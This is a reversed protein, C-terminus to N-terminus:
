DEYIKYGTQMQPSIGELNEKKDDKGTYNYGIEHYRIPYTLQNGKDWTYLEKNRHNYGIMTTKRFPNSFLLNVDLLTEKYLDLAFRIKTDRISVSDVAYLVGCVIFMEGVKHHDISINWIKQPLMKEADVKLVATNNSNPVPFIVWLGNDDVSFDMHNYQGSYLKDRQNDLPLDLTTTEYTQLTFKVITNKDKQNYFLSGNYMVQANGEFWISLKHIKSNIKEKYVTKNDFEYLQSPRDEYTAWFKEYNKEVNTVTERMWCGYNQDTNGNYVPKGVAYLVCDTARSGLKTFNMNVNMSRIEWHSILDILSVGGPNCKDCEPCMVPPGCLDELSKREPPLHGYVAVDKGYSSHTIKRDTEFLSIEGRTTQVANKSVCSYLYLLDHTHIRTINLQMKSKYGNSESNDIRYKHSNELLKGDSREWYKLPEPFAETECELVANSGNRVEVMQNRIRILPPFYVELGFTQNVQPPVGNDAICLYTGIHDRNVATLNLIEGAIHIDQWAGRNIPRNDVRQWTIRPTPTGTASCQLRVNEGEHVIIPGINGAQAGAISPPILLKSANNNDFSKWATIGPIGPTGNNGPRGSRGRPGTLGKIGPPGQPGQPGQDGKQGNIGNKGDTGPLGNSGPIGDHGNRGPMGDLGPEGPIGDRGDLGNRGQEGKHGKDGKQGPHGHQGRAGQPGPIGPLGREGKAGPNGAPGPPGIAPPPCYKLVKKCYGELTKEPIRSTSTLWIGDGTAGKNASTDQNLIEIYSDESSSMPLYNVGNNASRKTRTNNLSKEMSFEKFVRLMESRGNESQLENLFYRRFDSKTVFEVHIESNILRYVYHALCIETLFIFLVCCIVRATYNPSLTNVKVDDKPKVQTASM